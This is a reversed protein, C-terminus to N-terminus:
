GSGTRSKSVKVPVLNLSEVDTLQNPELIHLHGPHLQMLTPVQHALVEAVQERALSRALAESVTEVVGPYDYWGGYFLRDVQRQVRTRVWDFTLGVLLTLSGALMMELLWNGPLIRYITLFLGLYLVLIGLSLLAYVLTRNLLRDIDFLNHRLTAGVYSLPAVLLCLLVLWDPILAVGLVTAPAIYLLTPLGAALVDGFVILRLRRRGDPTARRAYVYILVIVAATIEAVVYLASVEWVWYPLRGAQSLLWAVVIVSKLGYLIGLGRRRQWPTGLVVPFTAHYHLLLSIALFFCAGSLYPQLFSIPYWPAFVPSPYLVAVAVTQALLFLLRVEVRRFRRWLLLVSILWFALAFLIPPLFSSHAATAAAAFPVDVEIQRGDRAVTLAVVQGVQVGEPPRPFGNVIFPAGNVARIVDGPQVGAAEAGGGQIVQYVVAPDSWSLHLEPVLHRRQILIYQGTTAPVVLALLTFLWRLLRGRHDRALGM